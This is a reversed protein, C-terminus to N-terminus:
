IKCLHLQDWLEERIDWCLIEGMNLSNNGDVHFKHVCSPLLDRSCLEIIGETIYHTMNFPAYLQMLQGRRDLHTGQRSRM